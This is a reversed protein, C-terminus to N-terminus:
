TFSWKARADLELGAIVATHMTSFSFLLNNDNIAIFVRVQKLPVTIYLINNLWFCLSLKCPKIDRSRDTFQARM